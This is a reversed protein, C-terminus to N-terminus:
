YQDGAGPAGGGGVQMQPPGDGEGGFHMQQM